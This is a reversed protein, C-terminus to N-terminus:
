PLITMRKEFFGFPKNNEKMATMRVIYIGAAFSRGDTGTANWVVEGPGGGGAVGRCDVTRRWALKGRLDFIAFQLSATGSPPVSYRIRVSGRCPNPVAGILRLASANMLRAKAIYGDSGAFLWRYRTTGAPVEVTGTEAYAGTEDDYVRASFAAPMAGAGTGELKFAIRQLSGSKNVFALRYACGGNSLACSLAHGFVKKRSEDYVGAYVGSFSPPLAYYRMPGATRSPDFACYVDTLSSGNEGSSIVKVAWGDIKKKTLQQGYHSMAQPIPPIRLMIQEFPMPNRITFGALDQSGMTVTRNALNAIALDAIYVPQTRFVGASDRVWSYIQLSEANLTGALTSDLIDGVKINFKYPLAIDTWTNPAIAVTQVASLPTTVGAGFNVETEERTKIWVIGGGQFKFVDALADSYEVWKQEDLANQPNPYWKFLRAKRNDYTWPKAGNAPDRLAYRVQPSDLIATVRLPEWKMPETRVYDSNSRWVQRSIDVKTTHVGDSATFVARVGNDQTVLMYPIHVIVQGSRTSALTGANMTGAAYADGGKACMFQWNVNGCNDNMTLTDYMDTLEWVTDTHSYRRVSVPMTDLMVMFISGLDNTKVSVFGSAPDVIVNNEVTWVSDRFRYVRLDNAPYGGLGFYRLGVYFPASSQHYMFRFAISAPIFGSLLAAPPQWIVLKDTIRVVSNIDSVSDTTLRVNDNFAFATDRGLKTFYTVLQWNYTGTTVTDESSDTPPTWKGGERREWLAVYYRTGFLLSERLKVAVTTDKPGAVPVVQQALYDQTSDPFGTIGYSIGVQLSDTAKAKLNFKAMMQDTLTDFWLSVLKVTNVGLKAGAEPTSDSASALQTVVSWLGGKYVQAGFYYRTKEQLGMVPSATDTPAPNIFFYQNTDFYYSNVPIAASPRYVIRIAEVGTVATWSLNIRSSSQVQASLVIPNVPRNVGVSFFAKVTASQRGNKGKVMVACWVTKVVGTNYQPNVIVMSDKGAPAIVAAVDKMSFRKTASAITFDPGTDTPQSGYWVCFSDVASTDVSKMNSVVVAASDTGLYKGKIACPNAPTSTDKVLVLCGNGTAFNSWTGGTWHVATIFGYLTDTLPLLLPITDKVPAGNGQSQMLSPLYAKAYTAGTGSLPIAGPKYWLAISDAFPALPGIPLVGYNTYTIEVGGSSVLRGSILVPNDTYTKIAVTTSDTGGIGIVTLKVNYTGAATFQHTPNMDVSDVATGDGFNWKRKTISGTSSDTFTVTLPVLGSLPTAGFKPVPKGASVMILNVKVISDTLGSPGTVVQKVSYTGVTQYQHVPNPQSGTASGDGFDWLWFVAGVSSDTFMVTLPAPGSKPTAGFGPVPRAGSVTILNTKILSDTGGPGTVILKVSFTGVGVYQHVPNTSVSDVASGDGFTWKRKTIVGTSSDTFTVSLPVAGTVPVASFIAKPKVYTIPGLTTLTQAPQQNQYCLKIWNSDRAVKSVQVEDIKGNWYQRVTSGAGADICRGIKFTSNGSGYITTWPNSKRLVGNVYICETTGDMTGAVHYWAGNVPVIGSTDVKITTDVHGTGDSSLIFQFGSGPTSDNRLIYERYNGTGTEYKGAIGEIAGAKAPGARNVWASVTLRNASMQFQANNGADYYDSDGDFSEANGILGSQRNPVNGHPTGALGNITADITNGASEGLHYVAVFGKASDFVAAGMSSDAAGSRGWYMRISQTSNNGYVTDVRVWIVATDNNNAGDVWREIQYSLHVGNTKAFRIDAGGALTNAFGTFNAPTLRILVPFGTVNNAVNAGTVTTNLVIVSSFSWQTYDDAFITAYFLLAVFM